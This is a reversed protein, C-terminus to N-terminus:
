IRTHNPNGRLIATGNGIPSTFISNEENTSEHLIVVSVGVDTPTSATSLLFLNKPLSAFSLCPFFFLCFSLTFLILLDTATLLM